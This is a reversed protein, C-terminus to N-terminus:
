TFAEGFRVQAENLFRRLADTENRPCVVLVGDKEAVLYDKLGRICAVKGEPLSVISGSCGSFLAGLGGLTVNNDGDHRATDFLGNWSGIDSWGFGCEQVCVQGASKELVLLDVNLRLSTPYYRRILAQEEDYSLVRKEARWREAVDPMLEALRRAMTPVQWLFLGTNWLFEGSEMFMRAFEAEPKEAFSKVRFHTAGVIGPEGKQIYGYNTNPTAPPVALALFAKHTEVYQLGATVDKRFQEENTILHDAPSVIINALPDIQEIHFTAWAAAPATSLQVPEALVRDPSIDPLQRLVEDTYETFTSVYIREPNIFSTFRDYTQQLLTRGTGFFDLFQKPKDKRSVPWLRRGSGGALIVLYDNHVTM